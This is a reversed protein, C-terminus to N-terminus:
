QAPPWTFATIQLGDDQSVTEVQITGVKKGHEKVTLRLPLEAGGREFSWAGGRTQTQFREYLAKTAFLEAAGQIENKSSAIAGLVTPLNEISVSVYLTYGMATQVLAGKQWTRTVVRALPYERYFSTFSGKGNYDYLTCADSGVADHVRRDAPNYWLLHNQPYAPCARWEVHAVMTGDPMTLPTVASVEKGRKGEQYLVGGQSTTVVLDDKTERIIEAQGDGDLDVRWVQGEASPAQAKGQGGAAQVEALLQAFEPHYSFRRAGEQLRTLAEARNGSLWLAKALHFEVDPNMAGLLESAHRFSTLAEGARGTGLQAQGLYYWAVASGSDMALAKRATAEAEAWKQQKLLAYAEDRLARASDTGALPPAPSMTVATPPPTGASAQTETAPPSVTTQSEPSKAGTPTGGKGQGCASCIAVLGLLVIYRGIEGTLGRRM